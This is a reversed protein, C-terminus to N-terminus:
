VADIENDARRSFCPRAPELQSISASVYREDESKM